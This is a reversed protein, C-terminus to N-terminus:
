DFEDIEDDDDYENYDYEDFDYEDFDYENYDHENYNQEDNGIGDFLLGYCQSDTTNFHEYGYIQKNCLWCFYCQCYTCMMKNCGETKSIFSRCKPCSKANDQLYEDTLCKEILQMQRKGYKKELNNKKEKDNSNKYENVLKIIEDSTMECSAHGHYLKRCFLCFCYNCNPCIPATDNPEKIVPYQCSIRPCYIMDDMTDLTIRLMIEEYKSFLSPCLARIDNDSIKYRCDLTPCLILNTREDIKIRVHKEMCDRCYVHRCNELEICDVGKYEEFCIYCTYLNKRFQEKHQEMDYCVLLKKIDLSMAGSLVRSDTIQVQYDFIVDDQSANNLHAFSVNLTDQINLFNFIDNQLFYLWLFIIENGQNKEWIEDLEQCVFATEWPTLWMISLYFSPPKKSPYTDPLYTYLRSPPLHEVFIDNSANSPCFNTFQIKLKKPLKSSINFSCMICEGKMYSFETKNYINSLATIEDKQRELNSATECIM